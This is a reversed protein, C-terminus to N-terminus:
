DVAGYKEFLTEKPMYLYKLSQKRITKFPQSVFLLCIMSQPVWKMIKLGRSGIPLVEFGLRDCGKNLLTIGILGKIEKSMPHRRVYDALCPLSAQVSRLIYKGREIDGRLPFLAQLLRVNHLHIKLLVDGPKVSEGNSLVLPKGRYTLLRVRFINREPEAEVYRLRTFMYYIPDVWRWIWLM